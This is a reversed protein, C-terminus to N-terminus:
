EAKIREQEFKLFDIAKQLDKIREKKTMGKTAVPNCSRWIYQIAQGPNSMFHQTVKYCEIAPHWTYYNPKNIDTQQEKATPQNLTQWYKFLYADLKDPAENTWCSVCFCKELEFRAQNFVGLREFDQDRLWWSYNANNKNCSLCKM